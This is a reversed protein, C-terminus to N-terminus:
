PTPSADAMAAPDLTSLGRWILDSLARIFGEVDDTDGRFWEELAADLMGQAGALAIIGLDHGRVFRSLRELHQHRVRQVAPHPHAAATGLLQWRLPSSVAARVYIEVIAELQEHPVAALALAADVEYDLREYAADYVAALLGGRDGFYNYILARSVGAADAVQEISVEMPDHGLMVQAAAEVISRRRTDPDLRTRRSTQETM